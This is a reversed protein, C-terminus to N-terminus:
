RDRKNAKQISALAAKARAALQGDGGRVLKTLIPIAERAGPGIMGLVTVVERRIVREERRAMPLLTPLLKAASPGAYRLAVLAELRHLATPRTLLYRYAPLTRADGPARRVMSRAVRVHIRRDFFVKIEHDPFGSGDDEDMAASAPQVKGLMKALAPLVSDDRRRPDALLEAAFERVFPNSHGLANVIKTVPAQPDLRTRAHTRYAEQHQQVHQRMFRAIAPSMNKTASDGEILEVMATRVRERQNGAYPAIQGLALVIATQLRTTADPLLNVLDPVAPVAPTGIRFLVQVARTRAHGGAKPGKMRLRGVLHPVAVGKLRTLEKMATQWTRDDPHGLQKVFETLRHAARAKRISNSQAALLGALVVVMTTPISPNMSMWRLGPM